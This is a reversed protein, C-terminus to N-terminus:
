RFFAYAGWGAAGVGFASLADASFAPFSALAGVAEDASSGKGGAGAQVGPRTDQLVRQM